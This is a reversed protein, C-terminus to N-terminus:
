RPSVRHRRRRGHLVKAQVDARPLMEEGRQEPKLRQGTHSTEGRGLHGKGVMGVDAILEDLRQLLAAVAPDEDLLVRDLSDLVPPRQMPGVHRVSEHRPIGPSLRHADGGDDLRLAAVGLEDPLHLRIVLGLAQASAFQHAPRDRWEHRLDGVALVAAHHHVFERGAIGGMM